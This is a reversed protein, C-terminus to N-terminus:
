HECSNLHDEVAQELLETLQKKTEFTVDDMWIYSDCSVGINQVRQWEVEISNNEADYIATATETDAYILDGERTSRDVSDSKSLGDFKNRKM